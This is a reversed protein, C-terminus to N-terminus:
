LFTKGEGRYTAASDVVSEDDVLALEDVHECLEGAKTHRFWVRDGIQLDAAAAGTLPTQVEGAGERPDAVPRAAVGADAAPGHRGGRLRDLRRRAGDGRRPLPPTRGSLVFFAAPPATSGRYHTSCTPAFLGSGAAVETVAEEAATTEVSGTGGGNVFELDAGSRVAAVRGGTTRALEAVSRRQM